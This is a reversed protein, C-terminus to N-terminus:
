RSGTPRKPNKAAKKKPREHPYPPRVGVLRGDRFVLVGGGLPVDKDLNRFM